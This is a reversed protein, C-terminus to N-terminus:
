RSAFSAFCSRCFRADIFFFLFFFCSLFLSLPRDFFRATTRPVNTLSPPPCPHGLLLLPPPLYVYEARVQVRSGKLLRRERGPKFYPLRRSLAVREWPLARIVRSLSHLRFCFVTPEVVMSIYHGGNRYKIRPIHGFIFTGRSSVDVGSRWRETSATIMPSSPPRFFLQNAM